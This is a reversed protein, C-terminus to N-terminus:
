DIQRAWKNLLATVSTIGTQQKNRQKDSLERKTQKARKRGKELEKHVEKTQENSCQVFHIKNSHGVFIDDNERNVGNECLFIFLPVFNPM